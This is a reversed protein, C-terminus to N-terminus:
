IQSLNPDSVIGLVVQFEMKPTKHLQADVTMNLSWFDESDKNEEM